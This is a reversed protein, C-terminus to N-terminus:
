LNFDKIRQKKSHPSIENPDTWEVVGQAVSLQRTRRMTSRGWIKKCFSTQLKTSREFLNIVLFSIVLFLVIKKRSDHIKRTITKLSKIRSLLKKRVSIGNM